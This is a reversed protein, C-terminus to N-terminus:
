YSRNITIPCTCRGSNEERLCSVPRRPACVRIYPKVLARTNVAVCKNSLFAYGTGIFIRRNLGVKSKRSYCFPPYVISARPVEPILRRLLGECKRSCADVKQVHTLLGGTRRFHIRLRPSSVSTLLNGHVGRIRAVDGM